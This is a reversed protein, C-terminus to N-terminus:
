HSRATSFITNNGLRFYGHMRCSRLVLQWKLACILVNAGRECVRLLGAQAAGFAFLLNQPLTTHHKTPRENAPSLVSEKVRKNNKISTENNRSGLQMIITLILPKQWGRAYCCKIMRSHSRAFVPCFLPSINKDQQVERKRKRERERERERKRSLSM